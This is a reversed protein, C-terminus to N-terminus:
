WIQPMIAIQRKCDNGSANRCDQRFRYKHLLIAFKKVQNTAQQVLIVPVRGTIVNLFRFVISNTKKLLIAKINRSAWSLESRERELMVKFILTFLHVGLCNKLKKYMKDFEKYDFLFVAWFATPFNLLWIVMSSEELREAFAKYM